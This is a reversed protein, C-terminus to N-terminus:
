YTHKTHATANGIPCMQDSEADFKHFALDKGGVFACLHVLNKEEELREVSATYRCLSM